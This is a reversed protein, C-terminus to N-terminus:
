FITIAFCSSAVDFINGKAVVVKSSGSLNNKFNDSLGKNASLANISIDDIKLANNEITMSTNILSTKNELSSIDVISLHNTNNAMLQGNINQIKNNGTIRVAIPLRGVAKITSQLSQDLSSKIDNAGLMGEATIDINTGVYYDLSSGMTKELVGSYFLVVIIVAIITAAYMMPRRMNGEEGM